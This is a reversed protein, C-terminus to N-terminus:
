IAQDESILKAEKLDRTQFLHDGAPTTTILTELPEPFNNIIEEVYPVMSVNVVGKQEFDLDMGLYHHKKGCKVKIDVYIKGIWKIINTIEWGDCSIKLDNVHWIITM